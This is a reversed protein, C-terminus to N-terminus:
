TPDVTSFFEINTLNVPSLSGQVSLVNIDFGQFTIDIEQASVPSVASAITNSNEDILAISSIPTAFSMRIKTPRYDQVWSGIDIIGLDTSLPQTWKSGDWSTGIANASWFTNDFVQYWQGEPEPPTQKVVWSLAM